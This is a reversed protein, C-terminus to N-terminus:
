EESEFLIVPFEEAVMHSKITATILEEYAELRKPLTIILTGAKRYAMGDIHGVDLLSQTAPKIHDPLGGGRQRMDYVATKNDSLKIQIEAIIIGASVTYTSKEILKLINEKCVLYLSAETKKVEKMNVIDIMIYELHSETTVHIGDLSQAFPKVSVILRDTMIELDIKDNINEEVTYVYDKYFMINQRPTFIMLSDAPKQPDAYKASDGMYEKKFCILDNSIGAFKVNNASILVNLLNIDTKELNFLKYYESKSTFKDKPILKNNMVVYDPILDTIWENITESTLYSKLYIQLMTEYFLKVNKDVTDLFTAPTMIIFGKNFVEKICIPSYDGTFLNHYTYETSLPLSKMAFVKDPITVTNYLVPKLLAMEKNITSDILAVPFNDISLWVNSNNAMLEEFNIALGTDKYHIGDTSRIFIFDTKEISTNILSYMSIDNQNVSLNSPCLNRAAANGFVKILNKSFDLNDNDICGVKLDYNKVTSYTMNKKGLVSYNFRQPEFTIAKEPVYSYSDGNRQLVTTNNILNKDKDFLCVDLSNFTQYPVVVNMQDTNFKSLCTKQYEKHNADIFALPIDIGTRVKDTTVIQHKGPYIKM